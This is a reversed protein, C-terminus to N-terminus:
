RAKRYKIFQAPHDPGGDIQKASWSMLDHVTTKIGRKGPNQVMYDWFLETIAVHLEQHKTAHEAQSMIFNKDRNSKDSAM